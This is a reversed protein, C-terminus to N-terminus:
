DQLHELSVRLKRLYDLPIPADELWRFMVDAIASWYLVNRHITRSWYFRSWGAAYLWGAILCCFAGTVTLLVDQWRPDITQILMVIGLLLNLTALLPLMVRFFIGARPPEPGIM